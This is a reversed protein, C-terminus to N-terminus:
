PSSRSKLRERIASARGSSSTPWNLNFISREGSKIRRLGELESGQTIVERGALQKSTDPGLHDGAKKVGVLKITVQEVEIMRAGTNHITFQVKVLASGDKMTWHTCTVESRWRRAPVNFLRFKVVAFGAAMLVSINALFGSLQHLKEWSDLSFNM